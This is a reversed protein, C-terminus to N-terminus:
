LRDALVAMLHEEVAVPFPRVYSVFTVQQLLRGNALVIESFTLPVTVGHDTVSLRVDIGGAHPGIVAPDASTVKIAGLTVGKPISGLIKNKYPGEAETQLCAPTKASSYAAVQERADASGNFVLVQDSVAYFQNGPSDFEPSSVVPPSAEIVGQPVDLCSALQDDAAPVGTGLGLSGADTNKATTWGKPMDSKVLLDKKAQAQENGASAQLAAGAKGATTWGLALWLAGIAVLAATRRAM